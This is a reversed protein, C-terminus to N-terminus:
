VVEPIANVANVLAEMTSFTWAKALGNWRAGNAKLTDKVPYTNGIIATM